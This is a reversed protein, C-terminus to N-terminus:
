SLHYPNNKLYENFDNQTSDVGANSGSNRELRMDASASQMLDKRQEFAKALDKLTMFNYRLQNIEENVKVYQDDSQINAVIMAETPKKNGNAKRLNDDTVSTAYLVSYLRQLELKKNELARNAQQSLQTVTYYTIAQEEYPINNRGFALAEPPNIEKITGSYDRYRIIPLKNYNTLDITDAM